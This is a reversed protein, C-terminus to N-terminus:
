LTSYTRITFAQESNPVIQTTNDIYLLDGTYKDFDPINIVDEITYQFEPISEKIFYGSPVSFIYCLQQLIVVDITIKVIRYRKNNNILIDDVVLSDVTSLLIEFTAFSNTTNIVRRTITNVPNKLLGFQRYDQEIESLADDDKILVSIAITQGFLEKVADYGHGNVPPLIAYTAAEYFTNPELRNIDSFYINVHTYGAGFNNVDVRSLGGDVVTATATAGYGDGEIIVETTDTYGTGPETVIISYIAGNIATQEIQSQDSLFDSSGIIGQLDAGEGDAAVVNIDIYSYNLGPNATIIGTIVGDEIKPYFQAGSGDGITSITTATDAPYDKGPDVIAIRDIRGEYLYATLLATIHGSYKGVGGAGIVNLTPIASYGAGPNIIEVGDIETTDKNVHVNIIATDRPPEVIPTPAALYGSGPNTIIYGSVSGSTLTLEITATVGSAPDPVVVTPTFLYNTGGGVISIDTVAGDTILTSLVATTGSGLPSTATVTTAPSSSYGYGGNKIIIGEVAGKSYFSDTLAKQVPIFDFSFFKRRKTIPVNYMYKWTYGDSTTFPFLSTSTPIITSPGGLNNNLCKYVNFNETIVYFVKGIMDQTHDWQDYVTDIAWTYNPIVTSVDNSTIKRIYLMNDRINVDENYTLGPVAPPNEEDPWTDIKGLFYFWNAHEYQIDRM